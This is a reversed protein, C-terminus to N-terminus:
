SVPALWAFVLALVTGLVVVNLASFGIELGLYTAPHAIRLKAAGAFSGVLNPTWLLAVLGVALVPRFGGPYLWAFVTLITACNMAVATLGIPFIPADRLVDGVAAEYRDKFLVLNWLVGLLVSFVYLAAYSVVYVM